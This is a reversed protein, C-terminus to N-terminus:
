NAVFQNFASKRKAKFDKLFDYVEQLTMNEIDEKL